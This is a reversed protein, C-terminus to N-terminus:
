LTEEFQIYSSVINKYCLNVCERKIQVWAKWYMYPTEALFSYCEFFSHILSFDNSVNAVVGDEASIISPQNDRPRPLPENDRSM